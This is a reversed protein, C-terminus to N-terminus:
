IQPPKSVHCGFVFDNHPGYSYSLEHGAPRAGVARAVVVSDGSPGREELDYSISADEPDGHQVADLLPILARADSDGEIGFARSLLAVYGARVAEDVAFQGYKEVDPLLAGQSLDRTVQALESRLSNCEAHANTGELLAVEAESWWLV